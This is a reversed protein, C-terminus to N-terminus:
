FAYTGGILVLGRQVPYSTWREYKSASANGIDLFLSLRKTYRYEAGLYLDIFGDMDRAVSAGLEAAMPINGARRGLFYAETKLLLKERFGYYLGINLCYPPLNWAEPQEETAYTYINVSGRAQVQEGLHYTLTGGVDLVDVQDYVVAFQDGLSVGDFVTSTAVFLAKDAMRSKSVRLDFGMQGSLTGRMGGFLTYKRNTNRLVPAGNVWPNERSLSHLGNREKAGNAGVYPVLVDGFLSYSAQVRPYFHFTAGDPVADGTLDTSAADIYMDAGVEVKYTGNGTRVAPRLSVLTNGQRFPSGVSVDGRYTNQDLLFGAAYTETAEAKTLEAGLRLNTERSGSLNAYNRVALQATHAWRTSDKYLSRSNASFGIDSYVQKLLAEPLEIPLAEVTPSLDGYYSVRRRDYDLAGQLEFHRLFAKYFAHVNNQGYASSGVDPIGDQSSIHKARVGWANDRSRASHYYGELLPTTYLGFGGKVFGKYLKVQPQVVSLKAPAISDVRAPLMHQAALVQYTINREPLVTDSPSPRLDIKRADAVTPSYIGHIYYEGGPQANTQAVALRLGAGYCLMLLTARAYPIM